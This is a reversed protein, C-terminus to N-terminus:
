TPTRPTSSILFPTPLLRRHSHEGPKIHMARLDREVRQIGLSTLERATPDLGCPRRDFPPDTPERAALDVDRDLRAGAPQEDALRKLTGARDRV